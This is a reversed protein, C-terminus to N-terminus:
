RARASRVLKEGDCNMCFNQLVGFGDRGTSPGSRRSRRRVLTNPNRPASASVTTPTGFLNCTHFGGAFSILNHLVLDVLVRRRRHAFEEM